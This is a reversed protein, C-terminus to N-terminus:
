LELVADLATLFRQNEEHLGINIRIYRPFGYDTMPRVIVGQRLFKEFVQRADQEVDILFFNSQTPFYRLRRKRLEAYLFDLEQHVLAITRQLFDIDGLAATAGAQALANVNFPMRVRNLIEAMATVMVGYGVRLGALGYAKSFTRLTIVVPETDLYFHNPLWRNDRVFDVYAEDVVVVIDSPLAGIFSEFAPQAILTGTPNNPNCIFIMRTRPGVKALMADLDISLGNLPVTVPVAGASQVVITYMLFSPQPILVEDEPQLLSLSLLDLIEDSGNGIVIQEPSVALTDALRHLLQYGPEDPYRHINRCAAQIAELAKPSPGLPNENSALKISDTIGYERELAELPKGPVYPKIEKIYSPITLKM